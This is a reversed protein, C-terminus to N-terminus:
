RLVSTADRCQVQNKDELELLGECTSVGQHEVPDPVATGDHNVNRYSDSPSEHIPIPAETNPKQQETFLVKASPLILETPVSLYM